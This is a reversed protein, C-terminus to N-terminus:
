LADFGYKRLASKVESRQMYQYFALAATGASKTLAMRQRLPKHWDSPILVFKGKEKFQPAIVLSLPVLAADVSGSDAFQMTQAANEGLVLYPQIKEWLDLHLLSEKAARGYPAHDPNAIAFHQLSHDQLAQKLGELKADVKLSSSSPVYLALRGLAYLRGEDRMQGAKLLAFIYEEDASLFLDFPAGQAIQQAFNGSSGYIIEVKQGTEEEFTHAITDLAFKLDSAAAIRAIPAAGAAFFTGVLLFLALSSFFLRIM